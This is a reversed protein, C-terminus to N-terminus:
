SILFQFVDWGQSFCGMGKFFMGDRQFVDWRESFCRIQSFMENLAIFFVGDRCLFCGPLFM